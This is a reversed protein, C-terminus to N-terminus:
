FNKCYMKEKKNLKNWLERRDTTQFADKIKAPYKQCIELYKAVNKILNEEILNEDLYKWWNKGEVSKAIHVGAWELAMYICTAALVEPKMEVCFRTVYLSNTTLFNIAGRISGGLGLQDAMKEAFIGAERIQLNFGLTQLMVLEHDYLKQKSDGPVSNSDWRQVLNKARIVHDAQVDGM